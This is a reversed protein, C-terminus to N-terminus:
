ARGQRAPRRGQFRGVRARARSATASSCWRRTPSRARPRDDRVTSLYIDDPFRLATTTAAQTVAIARRRLKTRIMPVAQTWGGNEGAPELGAAKFQQILYAITKTEGPTGPARGQFEDSALTRTIDSMRQQDVHPSPLGAAISRCCYRRRRYAPNM